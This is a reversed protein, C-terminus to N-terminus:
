RFETHLYLKTGRKQFYVTRNITQFFQVADANWQAFREPSVSHEVENIVTRKQLPSLSRFALILSRCYEHHIGLGKQPHVASVFFIFEHLSIQIFEQEGNRFLELLVNVWGGLIRDIEKSTHFPDPSPAIPSLARFRTEYLSDCELQKVIFQLASNSPSLTTLQHNM